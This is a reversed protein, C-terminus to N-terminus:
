FMFETLLKGIDGISTDLRTTWWNPGLWRANREAQSTDPGGEPTQGGACWAANDAAVYRYFAV